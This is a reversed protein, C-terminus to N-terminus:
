VTTMASCDKLEVEARADAGYVALVEHLTGRGKALQHKAKKKQKRSLHHGDESAPRKGGAASSSMDLWTGSHKPTQNHTASM